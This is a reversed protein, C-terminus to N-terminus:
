ILCIHGHDRWRESNEFSFLSEIDLLVKLKWSGRGKGSLESGRGRWGDFMLAGLLIHRWDDSVALFVVYGKLFLLITEIFYAPDLLAVFKISVIQILAKLGMSRRLVFHTNRLEGLKVMMLKFFQLLILTFCTYLSCALLRLIELRMFVVYRFYALFQLHSYLLIM